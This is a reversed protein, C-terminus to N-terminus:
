ARMELKELNWGGLRDFLTAADEEPIDWGWPCAIWGAGCRHAPNVSEIIDRHLDNLQDALQHQHCRPAKVLAGKLYEEGDQRRGMAGCYISWDHAVTEIAGQLERGIPIQEATHLNVLLCKSDHQGAIWVIGARLQKLLARSYAAHRKNINHAKRKSM